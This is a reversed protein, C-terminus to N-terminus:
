DDPGSATELGSFNRLDPEIREARRTHDKHRARRRPGGLILDITRLLGWFPIALAMEAIGTWLAIDGNLRGDSMMGGGIAIFLIVSLALASAAIFVAFALGIRDAWIVRTGM